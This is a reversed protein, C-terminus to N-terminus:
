RQPGEASGAAPTTADRGHFRDLVALAHRLDAETPHPEVPPADQAEPLPGAAPPEIVTYTETHRVLRWERDPFEARDRTLRDVAAARDDTPLAVAWHGDDMRLEVLWDEHTPHAAAQTEPQPAEGAM